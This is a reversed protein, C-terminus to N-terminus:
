FCPILFSFHNVLYEDNKILLSLLQDLLTRNRHKVPLRKNINNNNNNKQNKQNKKWKNKNKKMRNKQKQIKKM